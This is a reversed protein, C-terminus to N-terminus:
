GVKVLVQVHRLLVKRANVLMKGSVNVFMQIIKVMVHVVMDLVTEVKDLM